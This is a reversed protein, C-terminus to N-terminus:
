YIIIELKLLLKRTYANFINDKIYEILCSGIDVTCENIYNNNFYKDIIDRCNTENNKKNDILKYIVEIIKDKITEEENLFDLLKNIYKDINDDDYNKDYLEKILTNILTKNFEEDLKMEEKKEKLIQKIDKTLLDKLTISNDGNLNDIFIQNISPYIDFKSYLIDNNNLIEKNNKNFNRSIHIIFIYNYNDNRFKCLIFNSIYEIKTSNHQLFDISINYEKKLRSMENRMKIENIFLELEKENRIESIMFNMDRNLGEVINTISTFTYIISIKYKKNEKDNIYDKLNYYIKNKNYYKRIINNEQLICIIDQPLIKYIKNIINEKIKIIDIKNEDQDEDDKDEKNKSIKSFYYIMAQIDEDRCNILLDKLSYNISKYKKISTRLKIDDIFNRSIIKLDNDLLKDFSLFIKEFKNLFVLDYKNLFERDDLIIVRFKENVLTLQENDNEYCIRFYKKEDIIMYNKNYLDILFPHIQELNQLIILCDEKAYGMFRDLIRFRNEKNNDNEFPSGYYLIIKKFSYNFKNNLKINQYILLALSPKVGLLLYRSNIDRINDIICNIVNYDNIKLKDITLNSHPDVKECELNYLKKFLFVSSLKIKKNEEYFEYDELINKILEINKKTDELVLQLDIDIEYEIGGFNREIYKIIISVKEENTLDGSKLELVIGRILNYFDRIGHFDKIIKNEKKMLDIFEKLGKITEFNKEEREQSNNLNSSIDENDIKPSYQSSNNINEPVSDISNESDKGKPKNKENEVYKKYVVLEKIVQLINKYEYYSRSIIEFILEKKLEYSISEVINESTQILDDKRQDLDPASLVLFRNITAEDLSYNSIGVFSLGEEKNTYEKLQISASKEVLGLQDFLVMIIPLDEKKM